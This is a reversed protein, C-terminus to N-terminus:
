RKKCDSVIEMIKVHEHRQYELARQVSDHFLKAQETHQNLAGIWSNQLLNFAAQQNELRLAFAEQQRDSRDLLRDLIKLIWKIILFLLFTGAGALLGGLGFKEFSGFFQDM